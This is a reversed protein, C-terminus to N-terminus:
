ESAYVRSLPIFGAYLGDRWGRPIAPVAEWKILQYRYLEESLQLDPVVTATSNIYTTNFTGPTITNFQNWIGLLEYEEPIAGNMLYRLYVPNPM